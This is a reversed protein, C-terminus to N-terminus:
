MIWLSGHNYNRSRYRSIKGEERSFYSIGKFNGIRIIDLEKGMDAALV